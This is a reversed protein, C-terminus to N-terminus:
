LKSKFSNDSDLSIATECNEKLNHLVEEFVLKNEVTYFIRNRKEFMHLMKAQQEVLEEGM